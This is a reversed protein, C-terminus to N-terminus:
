ILCFHSAALLTLALVRMDYFAAPVYLTLFLSAFSFWWSIKQVYPNQKNDPFVEWFCFLMGAIYIVGWITFAYPAPTIKNYYEESYDQWNRHNWPFCSSIIACMFFLLDFIVPRSSRQSQLYDPHAM